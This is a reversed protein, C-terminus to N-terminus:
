FQNEFTHRKGHKDGLIIIVEIIDTFPWKHGCIDFIIFKRSQKKM